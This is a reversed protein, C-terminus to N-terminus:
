EVLKIEKVKFSKKLETGINKCFEDAYKKAAKESICKAMTCVATDDSEILISYINYKRKINESINPDLPEVEINLETIKKSPDSLSIADDERKCWVDKDFIFLNGSGLESIKRKQGRLAQKILGKLLDNSKKM